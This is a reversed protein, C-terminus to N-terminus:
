SKKYKNLITLHIILFITGIIFFITIYYERFNIKNDLKLPIIVCNAVFVFYSPFLTIIPIWIKGKFITYLSLSHFICFLLIPFFSIYCPIFLIIWTTSSAKDDLKEGIRTFYLIFLIGMFSKMVLFSINLYNESIISKMKNNREYIYNDNINIDIDELTINNDQVNNEQSNSSEMNNISNYCNEKKKNKLEKNYISQKRMKIIIKILEFIIDYGYFLTASVSFIVKFAIKRFIFSKILIPIFVLLITILLQEFYTNKFHRGQLKLIELIKEMRENNYCKFNKKREEILQKVKSNLKRKRIKFNIFFGFTIFWEIIIPLMLEWYSSDEFKQKFVGNASLSILLSILDVILFIFIFSYITVLLKNQKYFKEYLKQTM